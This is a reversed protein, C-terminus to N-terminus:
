LSSTSIIMTRRSHGANVLGEILEEVLPDSIRPFTRSFVVCGLIHMMRAIVLVYSEGLENRPVGKDLQGQPHPIRHAISMPPRIGVLGHHYAM